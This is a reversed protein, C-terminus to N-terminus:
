MNGTTGNIMIDVLGGDDDEGRDCDGSGTSSSDSFNKGSLREEFVDEDQNVERKM